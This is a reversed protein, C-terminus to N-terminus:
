KKKNAAKHSFVTNLLVQTRKQLLYLSENVNFDIVKNIKISNKSLSLQNNKISKKVGLSRSSRQYCSNNETVNLRYPISVRYEDFIDTTNNSLMCTKDIYPDFLLKDNKISAITIQKNVDNLQKQTILIENKLQNIEKEKAKILEKYNQESTLTSNDCYELKSKNKNIQEKDKNKNNDRQTAKFDFPTYTFDKQFYYNLFLKNFHGNM